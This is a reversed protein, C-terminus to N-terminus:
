YDCLCSFHVILHILWQDGVIICQHTKVSLTSDKEAIIDDASLLANISLVLTFYHKKKTQFKKELRYLPFCVFYSRCEVCLLITM